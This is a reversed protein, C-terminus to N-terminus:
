EPGVVLKRYDKWLHGIYLVTQCIVGQNLTRVKQIMLEQCQLISNQKHDQSHHSLDLIFSPHCIAM